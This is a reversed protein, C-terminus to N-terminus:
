VFDIDAVPVRAKNRAIYVWSHRVWNTRLNVGLKLENPVAELGKNVAKM